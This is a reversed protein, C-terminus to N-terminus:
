GKKSVPSPVLLGVLGGTCASGIALLGQPFEKTSFMALLIGGVIVILVALGLVGVIMRYIWPDTSFQPVSEAGVGAGGTVNVDM